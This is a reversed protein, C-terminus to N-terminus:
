CHVGGGCSGSKIKIRKKNMIIIITATLGGGATRHRTWPVVEGVQHQCVENERKSKIKNRKKGM